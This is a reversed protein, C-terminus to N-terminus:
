PPLVKKIESRWVKALKAWGAKNPHIENLWDGSSGTTGEDARALTGVTPVRFVNDRGQTWGAVTAEVDIFIRGTVEEWLAPPTQNKNYAEFLWAKRGPVAPANRATPIDYSNLFIPLDDHRSARVTDHLKAFNPDLFDTVLLGVADPRFCENVNAAPAAPTVLRLIGQGPEPDRAADIFDNGGASLLLADFRWDFAENVWLLFEDNLCESIRRMTDGFMSLNIFLASEGANDFARALALPLSAQTVSSRDMWSDGEVLFRYKFQEPALGQELASDFDRGYIATSAM